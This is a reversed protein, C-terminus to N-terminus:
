FQYGHKILALARDDFVVFPAISDGTDHNIVIKSQIKAVREAGKDHESYTADASDLVDNLSFVGFVIKSRWDTEPLRALKLNATAVLSNLQSLNEINKRAVFTVRNMQWDLGKGFLAVATQDIDEGRLNGLVDGSKFDLYGNLADLVSFEKLFRFGGGIGIEFEGLGSDPNNKKSGIVYKEGTDQATYIVVVGAGDIENLDTAHKHKINAMDVAFPKSSKYANDGFQQDIEFAFVNAAFLVGFALLTRLRM